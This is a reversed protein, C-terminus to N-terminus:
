ASVAKSTNIRFHKHLHDVHDDATTTQTYAAMHEEVDAPDINGAAVHRDLEAKLAAPDAGDDHVEVKTLWSRHAHLPLSYETLYLAVAQKRTVTTNRRVKEEIVKAAIEYEPLNIQSHTGEPIERTVRMTFGGNAAPKVKGAAIDAPTVKVDAPVPVDDYFKSHHLVIRM